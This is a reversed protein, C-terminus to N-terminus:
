ALLPMRRAVGRTRKRWPFPNLVRTQLSWSRFGASEEKSRSVFTTSETERNSFLTVCRPPRSRIEPSSRHGVPQCRGQCDESNEQLDVALLSLMESSLVKRKENKRGETKKERCRETKRKFVDEYRVLSIEDITDRTLETEGRASWSIEILILTGYDKM